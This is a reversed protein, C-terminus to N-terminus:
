EEYEDVESDSNVNDNSDDDIVIFDSDLTDDDQMDIEIEKQVIKPNKLTKYYSYVSVLKFIRENTLRNRKLNHIFGFHSWNREAAASSAPILMLKSAIVGIIPTEIQMVEWWIIPNKVAENTWLYESGFPGSKSHYQLLEKALKGRSETDVLKSTEELIYSM